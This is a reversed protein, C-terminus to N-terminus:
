DSELTMAEQVATYAPKAQYNEDLLLPDLPKRWSYRDTIGWVQLAKCSAQALCIDTVQKFIAAQQENTADQTMSVDLETIYIDLGLDAFRQLNTAVENFLDFNTDLHMQFGIGDIPVGKSILDQMLAYSANSKAGPWSIDYDTYILQANPAGARARIFAKEIYDAGMAQFWISNRQTGDDEFAENVVDWIEVTNYRETMTDIFDYMVQERDAVPTQQVWSPLSTYWVLTHGHVQMDHTNAFEILTDAAEWRYENPEPNIYGWKMSNEPTVLNFEQSVIDTYLDADPREFYNLLSAYGM